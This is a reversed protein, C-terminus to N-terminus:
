LIIRRDGARRTVRERDFYELLPIAYKRSIGALEKFKPVDILRDPTGAAFTKLKEVLSGIERTSFYFEETIKVLERRDLLVQFIKRAHEPKLGTEASAHILADELKPAELRAGAYLRQLRELVLKENGSIELNHAALRISDKEQSIKGQSELSALVAKFIDAPLHRFVKERLTERQIGRALPERKHHAEIESLTKNKLALFHTRSLYQNEAAIVSRNEAGEALVTQLMEKRWGTLAQLEPFTAGGEGANDLFDLLIESTDTDRASLKQLFTRAAAVDRGRHRKAAANLVRGGAITTQPSYSRIIFRDGPIAAVPTELRIQALGKNGPGIENGEEIVQVRALVEATGIHVRVRQRSRLAKAAEDLVEIEADFAQTPRLVGRECLVMGRTIETQDIGGLNVAARQGAHAAPVTKRHTQVGRVRVPRGSPLIELEDGEAIKGALLTGTVVAGFGKVTFSRDIPMRAVTNHKRGGMIGAMMRLDDKLEAIGEGTKSSVFRVLFSIFSGAILERAEDCVLRQMEEDVLDSKTIVVVGTRIGLLRCIQFHERTQPMVGEDAAIVLMVLDIGGAGALMNKVFREHGPVDVFGIRLDGMDLEAFGLDITIGRQKEEPLRDADTGTLAKVLATKGHDIHGATGAIIDM